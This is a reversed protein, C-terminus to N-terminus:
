YESGMDAMRKKRLNIKRVILKAERLKASMLDADRGTAKNILLDLPSSMSKEAMYENLWAQIQSLEYYLYDIEARIQFEKSESYKVPQSNPMDFTTVRSVDSSGCHPCNFVTPGYTTKCKKCYMLSM